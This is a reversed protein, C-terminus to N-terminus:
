LGSGAFSAKRNARSQRFLSVAMLNTAATKSARATLLPAFARCGGISFAVGPPDVVPPEVVLEDVVTEDVVDPPPLESVPGWVVSTVGVGSGEATIRAV